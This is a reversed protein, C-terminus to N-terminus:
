RRVRRPLAFIQGETHCKTRASGKVVWHAKFLKQWGGLSSCQVSHAPNGEASKADEMPFVFACGRKIVRAMEALAKNVDRTHELTHSCFGWDISKDRLPIAELFCQVSKLCYVQKAFQVRRPECDVVLPKIGHRLYFQHAAFGDNGGFDAFTDDHYLWGRKKLTDGYSMFKAAAMEGWATDHSWSNDKDQAAVYDADSDWVHITASEAGMM